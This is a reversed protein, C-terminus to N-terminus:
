SWALLDEDGLDENPDVALGGVLTSMEDAVINKVPRIQDPHQVM